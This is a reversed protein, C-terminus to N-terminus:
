NQGADINKSYFGLDDMWLETNAEKPFRVILNKLNDTLLGNGPVNGVETLVANPVRNPLANQHFATFPITYFSWDATVLMTVYYSNGCEDPYVARTVTGSSLTQGTGPDTGTGGAYATGGAVGYYKCNSGSLNATNPDDLLLTFGKTTNGPARAWFSMGDYMSVDGPSFNSYGALSGWDDNGSARFVEAATSGCRAGDAIEEVDASAVKNPTGDGSAWFPTGGVTDFPDYIKVQYGDDATCDISVEKWTQYPTCGVVGGLALLLLCLHGVGVESRAGSTPKRSM